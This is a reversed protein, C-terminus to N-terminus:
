QHQRQNRQIALPHIFSLQTATKFLQADSPYWLTMPGATAAFPLEELRVGAIKTLQANALTMYQELQQRKVITGPGLVAVACETLDERRFTTDSPASLIKRVLLKVIAQEQQLQLQQRQNPSEQTNQTRNNLYLGNIM